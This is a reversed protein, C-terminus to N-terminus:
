ESGSLYIRDLDRTLEVHRKVTVMDFTTEKVGMVKPVKLLEAVQAPTFKYGTVEPYHYYFIPLLNMEGLRTYHRKVDDFNLKFYQPLRVIVAQAGLRHAQRLQEAAVYTSPTTIGVLIPITRGTAGAGDVCTRIVIERDDDNLYPCEGLSGMLVLGHVGADVLYHVQARLAVDDVQEDEDFPTLVTPLIGRIASHARLATAPAAQDASAAGSAEIHERMAPAELASYDAVVRQTQTERIESSMSAGRRLTM